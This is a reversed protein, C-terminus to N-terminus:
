RRARRGGRRPQTFRLLGLGGLALLCLALALACLRLRMKGIKKM